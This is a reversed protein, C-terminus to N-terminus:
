LAISTAASRCLPLAASRCCPLLLAGRPVECLETALMADPFVLVADGLPCTKQGTVAVVAAPLTHEEVHRPLKWETFWRGERSSVSIPRRPASLPRRTRHRLFLVPQRTVKPSSELPDETPAEAPPALLARRYNGDDALVLKPRLLVVRRNLLFARCNYRVGNHIVPLGVDVMIGPM